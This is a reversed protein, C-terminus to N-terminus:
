SKPCWDTKQPSNPSYNPSPTSPKQNTPFFSLFPKPTHPSTNTNISCCRKGNHVTSSAFLLTCPPTYRRQSLFLPISRDARTNTNRAIEIIMVKLWPYYTPGTQTYFFNRLACPYNFMLIGNMEHFSNIAHFIMSQEIPYRVTLDM